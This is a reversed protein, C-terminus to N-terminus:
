LLKGGARTRDHRRGFSWPAKQSEVQGFWGRESGM